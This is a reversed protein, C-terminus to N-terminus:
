HAAPAQLDVTTLIAQANINLNTTSPAARKANGAVLRSNILMRTLSFAM